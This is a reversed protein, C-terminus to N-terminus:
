QKNVQITVKELINVADLAIEKTIDTKLMYLLAQLKDMDESSLHITYTKM